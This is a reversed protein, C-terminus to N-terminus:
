WWLPDAAIGQMEMSRVIPIMTAAVPINDMVGGVTLVFVGLIMMVALGDGGSLAVMQEAQWALLGTEQVSGIIVFLGVFFLILAWNVRKIAEDPYIGSA